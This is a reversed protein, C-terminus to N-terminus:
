QQDGETSFAFEYKMSQYYAQYENPNFDPVPTKRTIVNWLTENYATHYGLRYSRDFLFASYACLLFVFSAIKIRSM